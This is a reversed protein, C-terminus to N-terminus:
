GGSSVVFGSNGRVCWDNLMESNYLFDDRGIYNGTVSTRGILYDFLNNIRILAERPWGMREALWPQLAVQM